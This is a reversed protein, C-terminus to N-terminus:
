SMIKGVLKGGKSEIIVFRIYCRECHIEVLVGKYLAIWPMACSIRSVNVCMYAYFRYACAQWDLFVLSGRRKVNVFICFYALTRLTNQIACIFLNCMVRM